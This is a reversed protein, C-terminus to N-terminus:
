REVAVQEFLTGGAPIDRDEQVYAAIMEQLADKLLERCEELSSGETIVEPWEVLQGMYGSDIKTYKATYTASSAMGFEERTNRCASYLVFRSGGALDQWGAVPPEHAEDKVRSGCGNVGLRLHCAVFEPVTRTGHFGLFNAASQTGDIEVFM